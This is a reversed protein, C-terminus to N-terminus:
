SQLGRESWLSIEPLLVRAVCRLKIPMYGKKIFNFLLCIYLKDVLAWISNNFKYYLKRIM